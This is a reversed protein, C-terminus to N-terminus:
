DEVIVILRVSGEYDYASYRYTIEYTGPEACNPVNDVIVSSAYITSNSIGSDTCVFASNGSRKYVHGSVTISQVYDMADLDTGLPVRILYDSLEFQPCYNEQSDYLTVTAELKTSDGASNTVVFLMTYDGATNKLTYDGSIKIKDSLDGDLMDIVSLPLTIDETGVPFRLPETLNFEPSEYDSYIIDRAAKTVHGAEDFAAIVMRRTDEEVFNSVSEIILNETVDGDRDDTATVGALLQEDSAGASVTISATDMTIVPAIHDSIVKERIHYAAFVIVAAILIIISWRRLARM